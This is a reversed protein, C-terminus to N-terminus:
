FGQLGISWYEQWGTSGYELIGARCIGEPGMNHFLNRYAKFGHNEM